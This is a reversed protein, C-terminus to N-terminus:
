YQQGCSDSPTKFNPSAHAYPITGMRREKRKRELLVLRRPEQKCSTKTVAPTHTNGGKRMKKSITLPAHVRTQDERESERKSQRTRCRQREVTQNRAVARGSLEVHVRMGGYENDDDHWSM